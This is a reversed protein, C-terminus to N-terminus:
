WSLTWTSGTASREVPMVAPRDVTGDSRRKRPARGHQVDAPDAVQHVAGLGAVDVPVEGHDGTLQVAVRHHQLPQGGGGHARLRQADLVRM